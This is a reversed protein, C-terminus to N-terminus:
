SCNAMIFSHITKFVPRRISDTEMLIEHKAAPIHIHVANPLRAAQNFIQQSSVIRDDGGSFFLTPATISELAGPSRLQMISKSAEQVFGLTPNGVRLSPEKEMWYDHLHMRVPDSTFADPKAPSAPDSRKMWPGGGPIYRELWTKPLPFAALLSELGRGLKQQFGLLPASFIAGKFVDPARRMAMLSIMGGMSHALLIKPASGSVKEAAFQLLDRADRDFGLSHRRFTDSLYAPSGGQGRWHLVHVNCHLSSLFRALEFYKEGFESLGPALIINAVPNEHRAFVGYRLDIQDANKMTGWQWQAPQTFRKQVRDNGQKRM